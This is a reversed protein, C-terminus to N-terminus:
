LWGRVLLDSLLNCAAHVFVAAGIGARRAAVWGFLLAPFFVALRAPQLDVIFHLVGFLLAQLLWASLSLDIGLWRTRGPLADRLRGQLYGRFLAEEPLAVVLIQTLAYSALDRQPLWEFGRSPEHWWYFGLVFPPFVVLCVLTAFLLERLFVPLAKWLARLLEVIAGRLGPEPAEGEDGFVGGLSMGYRTLGGPLREACRMATVLFLTGVVLHLHTRLVPLTDFRSILWTAASVAAFVALAERLAGRSNAQVSDPTREHVQMDTSGVVPEFAPTPM